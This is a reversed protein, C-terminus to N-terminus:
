KFLATVYEVGYELGALPYDQNTCFMACSEATINGSVSPGNLTRGLPPVENACGKYLWPGISPVPIPETENSQASVLGVALASLFFLTSLPQM